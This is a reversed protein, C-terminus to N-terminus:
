RAPKAPAAPARSTGAHIWAREAGSALWAVDVKAKGFVAQVKDGWQSPPPLSVVKPAQGKIADLASPDVMFVAVGESALASVATSPVFPAVVARVAQLDPSRDALARVEDLTSLVLALGSPVPAGEDGSAAEKPPPPAPLRGNPVGELVDLTV